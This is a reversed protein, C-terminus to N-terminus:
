RCSSSASASLSGVLESPIKTDSGFPRNVPATPLRRRSVPVTASYLEEAAAIVPVVILLLRVWSVLILPRM